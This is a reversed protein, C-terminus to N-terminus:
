RSTRPLPVIFDPLQPDKVKMEARPITLIQEELNIRDWQLACLNEARLPILTVFQLMARVVPKKYLDISLLLEKIITENIIKPYYRPKAKKIADETIKDFV